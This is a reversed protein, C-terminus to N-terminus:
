RPFLTGPNRSLDQPKPPPTTTTTDDATVPTLPDAVVPEPPRKPGFLRGPERALPPRAPPAAAPKVEDTSPLDVGVTEPNIKVTGIRAVEVNAKVLSPDNKAFSDLQLVSMELPIADVVVRATLVQASDARQLLEVAEAHGGGLNTITKIVAYLDADCRRELVNHEGKEKVIRTVKMQGEGAPMSVTFDTGVPLPSVPGRFKVGDGFLVIESRRSSALHILGPSGPAVRHLWCSSNLLEGQVASNNPDALRLAIFAGYRLAPDPNATLEVLRDTFAADDMVALAKLCHARLAPHEEALKQLDAAGDTHGLYALSEAAAFRVWPNPVELGQRLARRSDGGLAELKIAAVLTTEPRLLESELRRRYMSDAAVPAIPVHRSVLLFRYHNFRYAYPVNVLVLDPRKAEAIKRDQDAGGHFTTNLREAVNAAMRWNQDGPKMLFFYPRTQNITGGNWIVATRLSPAEGNAQPSTGPQTETSVFEGAVVSGAAKVWPSGLLLQGGPGSPRGEKSITKLNETTDFDVLDCALLTGGKLSTTKSEDPVSLQVDIPDGNRAGPPILASVLVLSTTQKPSDLLEKINSWGQKKLTNELMQRWGGPPASSGTGPQLNYVLGVGSVPIPGLNDPLTKMGVTAFAEADAAPDEGMQARTPTPTKDVKKDWATCGALGIILGIGVIGIRNM